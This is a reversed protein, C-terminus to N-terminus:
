KRGEHASIKLIQNKWGGLMRGVEQVGESIEAYKPTSIIKDEWAIQLFFKLIDLKAIGIGLFMKKDEFSAYAARFIVELLGAFTEDIKRGLPRASKPIHPSINRLWSAYIGKAKILM